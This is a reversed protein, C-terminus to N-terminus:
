SRGGTESDATDHSSLRFNGSHSYRTLGHSASESYYAVRGYKPTIQYTALVARCNLVNPLASNVSQGRM